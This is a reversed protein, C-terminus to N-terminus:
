PVTMLIQKVIEGQLYFYFIQNIKGTFGTVCSCTYTGILRKCIAGNQCPHNLCYDIQEECLQGKFGM